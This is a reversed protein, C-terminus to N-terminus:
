KVNLLHKCYELANSFTLGQMWMSSLIQLRITGSEYEVEVGPVGTHEMIKTEHSRFEDLRNLIDKVKDGIGVIFRMREMIEAKIEPTLSQFGKLIEAIKTSNRLDAVCLLYHDENEVSTEAQKLSVRVREELSTSKVELLIKDHILFSSVDDPTMLAMDSGVGTRKVRLGNQTFAEEVIEEIISGLVKNRRVSEMDRLHKDMKDSINAVQELPLGLLRDFLSVRQDTSQLKRIQVALLDPLKISFHRELFLSATKTSVFGTMAFLVREINDQNLPEYHKLDSSPIWAKNKIVSLWYCRYARIEEANLKVTDPQTWSEDHEVVYSLIFELVKGAIAINRTAVVASTLDQLAIVDVAWDLIVNKDMKEGVNLVSLEDASVQVKERKFIPKSFSLEKEELFSSLSVIKESSTMEFYQDSLIRSRPFNEFRQFARTFNEECLKLPRIFPYGGLEKKTRVKGDDCLVPLEDFFVCQTVTEEDAKTSLWLLM